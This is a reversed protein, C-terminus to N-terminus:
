TQCFKGTLDNSEFTKKTSPNYTVSLYYDNSISYYYSKLKLNEVEKLWNQYTKSIQGKLLFKLNIPMLNMTNDWNGTLNTKDTTINGKRMKMIETSGREKEQSTKGFTYKILTLM